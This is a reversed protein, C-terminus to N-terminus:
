LGRNRWFGWLRGSSMIYQSSCKNEGSASTSSLVLTSNYWPKLLQSMELRDEGASSYTADAWSAEREGSDKGCCDDRTAGAEDLKDDYKSANDRYIGLSCCGLWNTGAAETTEIGETTRKVRM